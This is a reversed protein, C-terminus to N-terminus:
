VKQEFDVVEFYTKGIVKGTEEITYTAGNFDVSHYINGCAYPTDSSESRYPEEFSVHGIYRLTRRCPRRMFAGNTLEPNIVKAVSLFDKWKHIHERVDPHVFMEKLMEEKEFGVMHKDAQSM